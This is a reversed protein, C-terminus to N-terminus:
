WSDITTKRQMPDLDNVDADEYYSDGAIHRTSLEEFVCGSAASFAHLAGRPILIRDGSALLLTKGELTLQLSGWLVHFTEEKQKHLHAPHRQGPLLVVLRKCYERNVLTVLLAGVHRFHEVGHHHSLEITFDSGVNVHAECLLGKADHIITRLDTILNPPRREDLAEMEGYDRSAIMTEQYEGSTTQGPACPMAFFVDDRGIPDGKKLARRAYTGRALSRISEVEAPRIRKTADDGGAAISRAEIASEVWRESQEPNMSYANLPVGDAPIGVHRELIAAGMATASKVVDLNGAAEHGSYGVRIYPFRRMMRTMFGLQVDEPATPYLSVCHLLAFDVDRHTMFSVLNDIEVLSRGGTSCITPKRAAAVRELLPWDDASCSAVKIVEVGHDQVVGVSDEDFPTCVTTLGQERTATVLTLFDANTLRTSLFRPIHPLDRRDRFAPHIFSELNRYQLKVGAHIGYRRALRGVMEVIRLGHALSGGHNNAMEFVFLGDFIESLSARGV